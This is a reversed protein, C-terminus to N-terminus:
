LLEKEMASMTCAGLFNLLAELDKSSDLCALAQEAVSGEAAPLAAVTVLLVVALFARLSSSEKKTETLEVVKGAGEGATETKGFIQM